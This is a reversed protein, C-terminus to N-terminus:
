FLAWIQGSLCKSTDDQDLGGDDRVQAVIVAEQNAERNGSQRRSSM